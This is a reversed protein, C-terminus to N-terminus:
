HVVKDIDQAQPKRKGKKKKKLISFIKLVCLSLLSPRLYVLLLIYEFPDLEYICLM